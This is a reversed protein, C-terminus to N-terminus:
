KGTGFAIRFEIARGGRRLKFEGCIARILSLGHLPLVDLKCMDLEYGNGDDHVVFQSSDRTCRASLILVKRAYEPDRIRQDLAAAQEAIREITPQEIGALACNGHLIGNRVAEHLATRAM